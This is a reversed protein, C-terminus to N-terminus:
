VTANGAAYLQPNSRFLKRSYWVFSLTLREDGVFWRQKVTDSNSQEFEHHQSGLNLQYGM